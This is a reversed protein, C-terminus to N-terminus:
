YANELETTSMSTECTEGPRVTIFREVVIVHHEGAGETKPRRVVRGELNALLWEAPEQQM